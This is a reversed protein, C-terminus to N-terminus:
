TVYGLFTIQQIYVKHPFNNSNKKYFFINLNELLKYIFFNIQFYLFQTM